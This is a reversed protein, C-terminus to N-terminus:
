WCEIFGYERAHKASPESLSKPSYLWVMASVMANQQPNEWQNEWSKTICFKGRTASNPANRSVKQRVLRRGQKGKANYSQPTKDVAETWNLRHQESIRSLDSLLLGPSCPCFSPMWFWEACGPLLQIWLSSMQLSLCPAMFPLTVSLM